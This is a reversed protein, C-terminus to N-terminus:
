VAATVGSLAVKLAEDGEFLLPVPELHLSPDDPSRGARRVDYRRECGSCLVHGDAVPAHELSAGCAPCAPRYGYLARDLRIFLIREGAVSVLASGHTPVDPVEMQTWGSRSPEQARLLPEAIEIQMPAPAPVHEYEIVGEAEVEAVDPAAKHIAEEIALKLTVTSSPCGSCSGELRLRVVGEEVGLLEVDGGHSELYPRVGELAGRVRQEVPVPHLDHLLLLHSILEDDAFAEALEGADREAVEEVIRELGAGYLELLAQVLETAKSRAAPDPLQDVEELLSEVRAVQEHTGGATM